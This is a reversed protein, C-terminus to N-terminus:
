KGVKLWGCWVRDEDVNILEEHASCGFSTTTATTRTRISGDDRRSWMGDWGDATSPWLVWSCVIADGRTSWGTVGELMSM